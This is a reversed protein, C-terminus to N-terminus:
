RLRYLAAPAGGHILRDRWRAPLREDLGLAGLLRGIMRRPADVPMVLDARRPAVFPADVNPDVFVLAGPGAPATSLRRRPDADSWHLLMATRRVTWADTHVVGGRPHTEIWGALAQAAFRPRTNEVSLCALNALVLLALVVGAARRRGIRALWMGTLACALVAPLMFYRPLPFVTGSYGIWLCWVAMAIVAVEIFVRQGGSVPRTRWLRWAAVPAAFFLLGFEQNVLLALPPGWLPSHSINGTDFGPDATGAVVDHTRAIIELRYLVSEGQAAFWAMEAGLVLAVGLAGWLYLGRPFYAGRLFLLGYVILLGLATERTMMALGAAIGCAVLWGEPAARETATVFLGLSALLFVTEPIDVNLTSAAIVLLPSSALLVGAWLAAAGGGFRRVLLIAGGVLVIGYALALGGLLARTDGFLAFLGALPCIVTYRFGWHEYPLVAPDALWRLATDRYIADDSAMFGTWFLGALAAFLLVPVLLAAPHPDRPLPTVPARSPRKVATRM